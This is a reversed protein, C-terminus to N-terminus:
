PRGHPKPRSDSARVLGSRQDRRARFLRRRGGLGGAALHDEGHQGIVFRNLLHHEAGLPNEGRGVPRDVDRHAGDAKRQGLSQGGGM